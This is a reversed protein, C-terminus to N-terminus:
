RASVVAQAVTQRDTAGSVGFVVKGPRRVVLVAPDAVTPSWTAVASAIANNAVDAAVFGAHTLRAGARAEALVARDGANKSSYVAVVVAPKRELVRAVVLPVGADIRVTTRARHPAPAAPKSPHTAHPAVVAVASPTGHGSMLLLVGALGLVIALGALAVIKVPTSLTM